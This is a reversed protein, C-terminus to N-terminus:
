GVALFQALGVVDFIVHAVITPWLKRTRSYYLTFIIAVPIISLMGWVGQYAHVSVRLVVSLAGAVGLGFRPTLRHVVYGLWLFEEFIPNLVSAVVVAAVSAGGQFRRAAELQRATEPDVLQLTWWVIWVGALSALWLGVGLGIDRPGPEGAIRRPSWGRTVLWPVLIATLLAEYVVLGVLHEDTFAIKAVEEPAVVMRLISLGVSLGLVVVIEAISPRAGSEAADREHHFDTMAAQSVNTLPATVHGEGFWRQVFRDLAGSAEAAM